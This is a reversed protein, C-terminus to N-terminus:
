RTLFARVKIEPSKSGSQETSFTTSGPDEHRISPTLASSNSSPICSISLGTTLPSVRVAAPFLFVSNHSTSFFPLSLRHCHHVTSLYNSHYESSFKPHKTLQYHRPMFM